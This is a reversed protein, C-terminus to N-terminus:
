RDGRASISTAPVGPSPYKRLNERMKRVAYQVSEVITNYGTCRCLNNALGAKIEEVTPDPNRRLLAHAALVQGPTCFGCQSGLMVHFGEQVPDLEGAPSLGEVTTVEEGDVAAALTLCSLTPVGNVLVTCAGCDGGDCGMKTGTLGLGDRLFEILLESGSVAEERRLGNVTVSILMKM